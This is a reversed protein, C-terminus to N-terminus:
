DAVERPAPLVFYHFNREIFLRPGSLRPHSQRGVRHLREHFVAPRNLDLTARTDRRVESVSLVNVRTRRDHVLGRTVDVETYVWWCQVFDGPQGFAREM